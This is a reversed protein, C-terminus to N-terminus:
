EDGKIVGQVRLLYYPALFDVPNHRVFDDAAGAFGDCMFPHRQPWFDQTPLRHYPLPQSARVDGKVTLFKVGRDNWYKTLMPDSNITERPPPKGAPPYEHLRHVVDRMEADPIRWFRNVLAAIWPDRTKRHLKWIRQLGEACREALEADGMALDALIHLHIAARHAEYTKTYDLFKFEAFRLLTGYRGYLDEFPKRYKPDGTMVHATRLIAIAISSRSPDTLLGNILKGYTTPKGDAGILAYDNAILEDALARINDIGAVGAPAGGYKASFYIGALIGSASDNSADDAFKTDDRPDRGRILRGDQFLLGIAGAAQRVLDPSVDGAQHGFGLAAAALGHHVAQDGFDPEEGPRARNYMFLGNTLRFNELLNLSLDTSKEKLSKNPDPPLFIRTFDDYPDLKANVYDILAFAIKAIFGLM